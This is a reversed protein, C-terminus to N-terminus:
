KCLMIKTAIMSAITTIDKINNPYIFM